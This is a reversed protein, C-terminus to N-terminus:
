FGGAPSLPPVTPAPEPPEPNFLDRPTERFRQLTIKGCEVQVWNPKEGIDKHPWYGYVHQDSSTPPHSADIPRPVLVVRVESNENSSSNSVTAAPAFSFTWGPYAQVIGVVNLGYADNWRVWNWAAVPCGNAPISINAPTAGVITCGWLAALSALGFYRFQSRRFLKEIPNQM